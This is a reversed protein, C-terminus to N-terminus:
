KDLKFGEQQLGLQELQHCYAFSLSHDSLSQLTHELLM